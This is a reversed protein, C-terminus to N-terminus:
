AAVSAAQKRRAAFPHSSVPRHDELGTVNLTLGAAEFDHSLEHLKEMVTHDVFRTESLDVTLNRRKVLGEKVIRRRLPIWTSFVAARRAVLRCSSESEDKMQASAVFLSTIPAGMLVHLILETAVGIAIGWLLDIALVGVITVCFAILQEVGIKYVAMFERPHALRFGTYVLMAALAAMPIRHLLFPIAAVCVALCLGHYLNAFRTRAGNDVNARSRVIESIMPLGGVFAAVLNGVGVALLDRNQNTKRKWPDLLDVAKASLLSELSGIIAFMAVWYWGVGTMLSNFDPLTLESLMNSPVDVLYAESITYEHNAFTYTHEHTLDFLMGLPVAVLVVVLQGPIAKAWRGPILPKIFLIALGIAGILAIEPNAQMVFVPISALLHLPEGSAKVGMMGPFQKAIIIIGIAALLGHVAASPFFEGLSGARSLAFLIQLAAAAVAVGLALKYAALDQPVSEGGTYGFSTVCGVVIVIMGAAPGKITLESNSILASVVGGIIATFVGAIAPFGSAISIGLCLPLAILFVLFGSVLDYKFYKFARPLTGVPVEEGSRSSQGSTETEPLPPTEDWAAERDKSTVSM